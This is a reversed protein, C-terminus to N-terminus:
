QWSKIFEKPESSSSWNGTFTFTNGSKPLFDNSANEDFFGCLGSLYSPVVCHTLINNGQWVAEHIEFPVLYTCLKM